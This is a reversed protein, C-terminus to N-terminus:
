SGLQGIEFGRKIGREFIKKDTTVGNRSKDAWHQSEYNFESSIQEESLTNNTM